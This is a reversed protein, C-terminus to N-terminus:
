PVGEALYVGARERGVVVYAVKSGDEAAFLAPLVINRDLTRREGTELNYVALDFTEADVRAYTVLVRAGGEATKFSYVGEVIKKPESKPKTLDYFFLDCARNNRICNSRFLLYQNNPGFGYGVYVGPHVRVAKEEGVRYLMLDVSYAPKIFRSLFALVTGDSGWAFNPVRGGVRRPKGDPLETVGMLGTRTPQHWLELYAVAKSDAAFALREGVKEAIKRAASGDPPGIYLDGHAQEVNWNQTRALWKGDPSFAVMGTDSALKSTRGSQDSLDYLFLDYMGRSRESQRAFAVKKSDPSISYDGVRDSLKRQNGEALAIALLSGGASGRRKAILTRSDPTFEATSVEGSLEKFPGLPLLGAKLVAGDVFALWRSDPSVLVYTVRAGLPISRSAPDKLDQVHLEGSQSAANYGSLFLVWRSDPSFLYGGPVNTVGTGLRRVPGGAIPAAQLTGIVMQPPVGELRPKQGDALYTAVKGDPTLRLDAAAGLALPKGVGATPASAVTSKKCGFVSLLIAAALPAAWRVAPARKHAPWVLPHGSTKLGAGRM